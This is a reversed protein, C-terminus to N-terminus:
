KVLGDPLRGEAKLKQLHAEMVMRAASKLQEPVDSWVLDLLAERSREGAAM